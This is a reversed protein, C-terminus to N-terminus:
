DARSLRIIQGDREDTLLWISGDPAVNIDRIRGFGGEFMREEGLIKGSGDRDLRSVLAFKLSGVILDDKWEPFMEGQYVALGSPAISPDWYFLPQEYGPAETGVGIKKGGYTVGYSIVPWGYNRGAEPHNIEDGGADGHEATLLGGLVSDWAVGQANRHGKSWIEPLQRAGDPSPNDAPISGDTNIRIIAGAHDQMDQARDREGRDGTTVFLTGDPAFVLRSGFHRTVNTKKAMSFIVEVDELQAAGSEGGDRVLRARAVATGAGGRGPESFSFFILNSTEFDPAAVVDLLGGQGRAAVEPVGEIPDSPGDASLIRMRGPRETVIAEGNPLFDLGWPNRLGEAIIEAEIPVEDTRFLEAHATTFLFGGALSLSASFAIIRNM